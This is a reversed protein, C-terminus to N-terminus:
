MPFDIYLFPYTGNIVEGHTNSLHEIFIVRDRPFNEEEPNDVVCGLGCSAGVFVLVLLVCYTTLSGHGATLSLIKGSGDKHTDEIFFFGNLAFGSVTSLLLSIPNRGM